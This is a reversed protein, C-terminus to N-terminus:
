RWGFPLLVEQTVASAPWRDLRRALFDQAYYVLGGTPTSSLSSFSAAEQPEKVVWGRPWGENVGM